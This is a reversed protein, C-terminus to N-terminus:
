ARNRATLLYSKFTRFISLTPTLDCLGGDPPGWIGSRACTTVRNVSAMSTFCRTVTPATNSRPQTVWAPFVAPGYTIPQACAPLILVALAALRM